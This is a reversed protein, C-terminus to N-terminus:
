LQLQITKCNVESLKVKDFYYFSELDLLVQYLKKGGIHPLASPAGCHPPLAM